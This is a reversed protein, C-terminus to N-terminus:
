YPLPLFSIAHTVVQISQISAAAGSFFFRDHTESTISVSTTMDWVMGSEGAYAAGASTGDQWSHLADHGLLYHFGHRGRPDLVLGGFRQSLWRANARAYSLAILGTQTIDPRALGTRCRLTLSTNAASASHSVGISLTIVKIM